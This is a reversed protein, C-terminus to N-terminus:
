SIRKRRRVGNNPSPESPEGGDTAWTTVVIAAVSAVFGPLLEHLSFLHPVTWAEVTAAAPDLSAWTGLLKWAIVVLGGTLIGAMAAARTMRRWFLSLVIAPGFSAGLGAWAFGVLAIVKSKPDLAIAFAVVGMVVVAARGVWILERQGASPRLLGKYLDESIASSAVLLQSDSTSMIAALVGALCAGAVAAPFMQQTMRLFVKETDPGTLRQDLYGIGLLGIATAALLCVTVWTMAIAMAHPMRGVNGIAMFRALIHPQGVYGVGWALSSLLAIVGVPGGEAKTLPRFHTPEAALVADRAEAWGGMAVLAGVAVAVLAVFMLTGQVADTWSVALFGGILTYLFIVAATAAVGILYPVDFLDALGLRRLGTELVAALPSLDFVSEFLKGGANMGSAIYITFFILIMVASVPRLARFQFCADFYDPITLANNLEETRRRLRTAVFVWNICTGVILSVAIWVRSLGGLYVAGPLALLLWQSMDSAQASLATPWVGLRRGGLIYDALSSTRLYGAVGIGLILLLYAVFAIEVM